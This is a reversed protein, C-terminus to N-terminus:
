QGTRTIKWVVGTGPQAKMGTPELAIIGFDVVYLAGDPGFAVSIPRNFGGNARETAFAPRGSRNTLFDQSQGTRLNLRVVRFGPLAERIERLVVVTGFQAVLVEDPSLGWGAEDFTFGLNASHIPEVRVLPQPPRDRGNMLRRRTEETLVFNHPEYKGAFREDTVPLGSYYDPWGYWEGQRVEWFTDWDNYIERPPIPNGGNQSAILRGDPAFEIHFNDRLGWAFVELNSGDPDARLISGNCMVKGRIVQGPRTQTGVPVFAGSLRQDPVIPTSPDQIPSPFNVGTLTVDECPVEHAEPKMFVNEVLIWHADVPGANGQVSLPFYMKGDPGFQVKHNHFFGWSPMGNVVTRFQGTRPDLTSVRSRHAVYLLGNHFTVGTLPSILGEPMASSSSAAKIAPMPVQQDYVVRKGGDPMIQLIRPPPAKEPVIGYTHGGAEGVYIEGQDGFTINVPFDLGRALVEVQYGPPAQIQAPDPQYPIPRPDDPMPPPINAVKEPPPPPGKPMPAIPISLGAFFNWRSDDELFLREGKPVTDGEEALGTALFESTAFATINRLPNKQPLWNFIGLETSLDFGLKHTYSRENEPQSAPSFDDFAHLTAGLWGNTEKRTLLALAAGLEIGPSNAAIEDENLDRARFGTFPNKDTDATPSWGIETFLSFRPLMTPIMATLFLFLNEESDLERVTGDELFRVEPQDFVRTIGLSPAFTIEAACLLKKCEQAEGEPPALLSGLLAAMPALLRLKM